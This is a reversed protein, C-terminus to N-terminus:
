TRQWSPPMPLPVEEEPMIIADGYQAEKPQNVETLAKAQDALQCELISLTYEANARTREIKDRKEQRKREVRREKM